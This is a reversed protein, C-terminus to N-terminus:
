ESDPIVEPEFEPEAPLPLDAPLRAQTSLSSQTFDEEDPLSALSSSYSVALPRLRKVRVTEARGNPVDFDPLVASAVVSVAGALVLLLILVPYISLYALLTLLIRTSIPRKM